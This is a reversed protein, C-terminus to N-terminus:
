RQLNRTSQAAAHLLIRMRLAPSSSYAYVGSLIDGKRQYVIAGDLSAPKGAVTGVEHLSLAIFGPLFAAKPHQLAITTTLSVNGDTVAGKPCRKIGSLVDRMAQAAGGPKYLVVENSITPDARLRQFTVQDRAVRLAESKFSLHCMDLTPQALSKGGQFPLLVYKPGVQSSRLVLKSPLPGSAAAAGAACVLALLFPLVSRKM